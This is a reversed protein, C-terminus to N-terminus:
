TNIKCIQPRKIAVKLVPNNDPMNDTRKQKM